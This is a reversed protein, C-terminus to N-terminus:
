NAARAAARFPEPSWSCAFGDGNPDLNLPDREPGGRRLFEEQALDASAFATCNRAHNQTTLRSRRHVQQGVANTTRLAFAVINPADSPRDPLATPEVMRFAARRQEFAVQEADRTARATDMDLVQDRYITAAGAPIPDGTASQAPTAAATQLAPAAPATQSPRVAALAAAAISQAEDAPQAPAPAGPRVTSHPPAGAISHVQPPPVISAPAARPTQAERARLYSGYDGFGVGAASDPVQPACATLLVLGAAPLLLRMQVVKGRIIAM